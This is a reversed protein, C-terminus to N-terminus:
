KFIESEAIPLFYGFVGLRYAIVPFMTRLDAAVAYLYFGKEDHDDIGSFQAPMSGTHSHVELVTNPVTEYNVHGPGGDQVPTKITYIGDWVLALYQETDPRVMLSSLLLDRFYGPIRGHVLQIDEHLPALGRVDAQGICITVALRDNKARLFIGNAATIYDYFVGAEGDIGTLSNTLYGVPKTM